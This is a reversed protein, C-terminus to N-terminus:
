LAKVILLDTQINEVLIQTTDGITRNIINDPKDNGIITLGAHYLEATKLIVDDFMSEEIHLSGKSKPHQCLVKQLGRNEVLCCM